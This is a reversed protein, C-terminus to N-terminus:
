RRTSGAYQRVRVLKNDVRNFDTVAVVNQGNLDSMASMLSATAFDQTHLSNVNLTGGDAFRSQVGSYNKQRSKPLTSNNIAELLPLFQATARKNIVMEGGEVEINTGQIRMGGQAHSKGKLLGGDALKSIQQQITAVQVAGQAAVIAAFVAGLPWGFQSLTKAVASATNAIAMIQEARLQQKKQKREKEAIQAEIDLREQALREQEALREAYLVQEEALQAQIAAKDAANAEKLQGKLDDIRSESEDVKDAVGDYLDNVKDLNDELMEIQHEWIDMMTEDYFSLTTLSAALADGFGKGLKENLQEQWDDGFVGQLLKDISDARGRVRYDKGLRDLWSEDSSTTTTSSTAKVNGNLYDNLYKAKDNLAKKYEESDEGYLNKYHALQLNYANMNANLHEQTFKEKENLAKKYEESDTGYTVAIAEIHEDWSTKYKNEYADFLENKRKEADEQIKNLKKQHQSEIMETEQNFRQQITKLEEANEGAKETSDNFWDLLKEKRNKYSEEEQKLLEEKYEENVDLIDSCAKMAIEVQEDTLPKTFSNLLDYYGKFQEEYANLIYESYDKNTKESEENLKKVFDAHEKELREKEKLENAKTDVASKSYSSNAKKRKDLEKSQDKTAKKEQELLKKNKNENQRVIEKNVGNNYDTAFDGFESFGKKMLSLGESFNGSIMKWVGSLIDGLAKFRGIIANVVGMAVQKFKDFGKSLKDISVINKNFWSVLDQWHTILVAVLSIILLLPIANLAANLLRTTVTTAKQANSFLLTKGTALDMAKSLLQGALTNGKLAEQFGQLSQLMAMVSQLKQISKILDEDEVGLMAMSSQVLGFASATAQAISIVGDLKSTDSAFRKVEEAADGLADKYAGAKKALEEFEKSNKEGKLILEAMQDQIEKLGGKLSQGAIVYDGVSRQNNGMQKDFAKLEENLEAYKGILEQQAKADEETATTSNKIVTGLASLVKQKERYTSQNNEEITQLAKEVKTQNLVEKVHDKTAQTSKIQADTLQQTAAKTKSGGLTELAEKLKVVNDYAESVGDIQIRYVKTNEAM